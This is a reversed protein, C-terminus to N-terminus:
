RYQRPMVLALSYNYSPTTGGLVNTTRLYTYNQIPGVLAVAIVGNGTAPYNTTVAVNPSLTTWTSNDTSSQLTCTLAPTTGAINTACILLYANGFYGGNNTFTASVTNANTITNESVLQFVGPSDGLTTQAAAPYFAITALAVLGVM